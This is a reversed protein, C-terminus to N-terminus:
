HTRSEAPKVKLSQLLPTVVPQLEKLEALKPLLMSKLAYIQETERTSPEGNGERRCLAATLIGIIEYEIRSTEDLLMRYKDWNNDIASETKM